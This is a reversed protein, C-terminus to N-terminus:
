GYYVSTDEEPGWIEFQTGEFPHATALDAPKVDRHMYHPPSGDAALGRLWTVCPGTQTPSNNALMATLATLATGGGAHLHKEIAAFAAKKKENEKHSKPHKGSTYYTPDASGTMWVHRVQLLEKLKPPAARKSDAYPLGQVHDLHEHSMVYLDVP